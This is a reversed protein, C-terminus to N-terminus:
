QRIEQPTRHPTARSLTRRLKRESVRGYSFTRGDLLLGPAFLIGHRMALEQGEASEFFVVRLRMPHEVSVRLLVQKAHECLECDRASLLVVDIPEPPADM